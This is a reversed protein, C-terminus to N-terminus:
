RAEKQRREVRKGLATMMEYPISGCHAALAGFDDFVCVTQGEKAPVDSLDLTLYDMCVRGVIPASYVRDTCVVKLPFGSLARIVGDAYGLPVTGLLTKKKAVFAGGYGVREGKEIVRLRIVPSLVRMVRHLSLASEVVPYGYLAIGLRVGDLGAEPLSLAAASAAAHAFLPTPLESQLACFKELARRTGETNSDAEPFHTFIGCIQLNTLSFLSRVENKDCSLGLRNMGIDIKIHASLRVGEEKAAASLAVAYEKSFLTLILRARAAARVQCLPMYGLLLIEARPALARVLEGEERTAVAFFDCGAALLAPVTHFIGHGYADAKVVAIVRTGCAARLTAFNQQLAATDIEAVARARSFLSEM